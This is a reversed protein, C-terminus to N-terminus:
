RLRALCVRAAKLLKPRTSIVGDPSATEACLQVAAADAGLSAAARDNCVRRVALTKARALLHLAKVAIDPPM